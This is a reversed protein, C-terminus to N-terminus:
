CKNGALNTTLSIIIIETLSLYNNGVNQRNITIIRKHTGWGEGRGAPLASVYQKQRPQRDTRRIVQFGNLINEHFKMYIYLMM